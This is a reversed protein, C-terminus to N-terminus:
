LKGLRGRDSTRQLALRRLMPFGLRLNGAMTWPAKASQSNVIRCEAM